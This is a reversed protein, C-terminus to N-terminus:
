NLHAKDSIQTLVGKSSLYSVASNQTNIFLESTDKFCAQVLNNSFVFIYGSSSKKWSKIVVEGLALKTPQCPALSSSNQASEKLYTTFKKLLKVKSVLEVPHLSISHIENRLRLKGDTYRVKQQYLFTDANKQALIRSGDNFNVGSTCDSLLYAFGYKSSYDCWSRAFVPPCGIM